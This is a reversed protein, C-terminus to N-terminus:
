LAHEHLGTNSFPRFVLAETLIDFKNKSFLCIISFFVQFFFGFFVQASYEVIATLCSDTLTQSAM